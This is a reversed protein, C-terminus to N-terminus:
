QDNPEGWSCYDGPEVYLGFKFCRPALKKRVHQVAIRLSEGNKYGMGSSNLEDNIRKWSMHPRKSLAFTYVLANRKHPRTRTAMLCHKCEQCHLIEHMGPIWNFIDDNTM